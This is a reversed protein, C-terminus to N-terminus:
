VLELIKKIIIIQHKLKNTTKEENNFAELLEKYKNVIIQSFKFLEIFEGCIKDGVIKNLLVLKQYSQLSQSFINEYNKMFDVESILEFKSLYDIARIVGKGNLIKHGETQLIEESVNKIVEKNSKLVYSVNPSLEFGLKSVLRITKLWLYPRASLDNKIIDIDVEKILKNNIDNIGNEFDIIKNDYMLSNLTYDAQKSKNYLNDNMCVIEIFIKENKHMKFSFVDHGNITKRRKAKEMNAFKKEIVEISINTAIDVDNPSFGLYIDRLYGGFIVSDGITNLEELLEVVDASIM